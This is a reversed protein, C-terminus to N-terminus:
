RVYHWLIHGFVLGQTVIWLIDAMQLGSGIFPNCLGFRSFVARTVVYNRWGNFLLPSNRISQSVSIGALLANCSQQTTVYRQTVVSIFDILWQMAVSMHRNNSKHSTGVSTIACMRLWWWLVISPPQCSVMKGSPGIMIYQAWWYCYGQENFLSLHAWMHCSRLLLVHPCMYVMLVSCLVAWCEAVRFKSVLAVIVCLVSLVIGLLELLDAYDFICCLLSFWFLCCIIYLCLKILLFCSLCGTVSVGVIDVVNLGLM